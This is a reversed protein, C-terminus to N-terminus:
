ASAALRERIFPLASDLPFEENDPARRHRYELRGAAIGRESVVVRHPVGILEADAFKVGPRADRDDLLVEVGAGSLERYIRGATERVAAAKEWNLGVLVVDFPALPAPWIIGREDHNQEIAAAVIRTVGIGYCGMTMVITRGEDDLVTAGMAESYKRGLQFIHGVEIGRAISLTGRGGPSPDGQVVNRLDAVAPEPLDRGWNVGTLHADRRNAGCAFDATAAAARDAIVPVPLGVPGLFGPECGAVQVIRAADAMRLPKAVQPLKQAKVANLEHDGRLVLAVLGGDAGEVVLTKLLRSAPLALVEGVQVITRAGPTAVEARAASPAPRPSAPALAEALELNAAYDDGDSFAIADEGSDALVHFEQSASGGIAGTDAHVARFRLGLRTFIATYADYMRRYGEALSAEDAHFSYADKMVFERARMVGFRPRIEDRFKTQIQYFNVPLQRYSKLERRALDTVVEEHTPGLVMDRDHRDKFRLLEPGFQDWRGSEVWLEAPQAVPMSIELAGARDMEERIVREVRRLVRLGMPLWTYLGGAVRRILGARLMLRHSAVEAESPVEKLNQIPYSSLRM